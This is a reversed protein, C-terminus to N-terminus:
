RCPSMLIQDEARAEITWVAFSASLGNALERAEEDTSPKRIRLLILRELKLFPTTYFALLYEPFSIQFLLQAYYSDIYAQFVYAYKHLLYQHSYYVKSLSVM